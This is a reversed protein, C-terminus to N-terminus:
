GHALRVVKYKKTDEVTDIKAFIGVAKKELPIFSNVVFYAAGRRSLLRAAAKLFLLTLDDEVDFGRHFPPNCLIMEFQDQIEDGADAAVVDISLGFRFANQQVAMLATVNNDTAIIKANSWQKGAQVALWGYGCGLDLITEAALPNQENLTQITQWLLETGIDLKDWGFIGSKSIFAPEDSIDEADDYKLEFWDAYDRDDLLPAAMEAMEAKKTITAMLTKAYGRELEISLQPFDRLKEFLSKAGENVGGALFLVGGIPLTMLAHNVVYHLLAKEKAIRFFIQQPPKVLVSFDYDNAVGQGEALRWARVQDFRQTLLFPKSVHTYGSLLSAIDTQEDAIWLTNEANCDLDRSADLLMTLAIDARSM